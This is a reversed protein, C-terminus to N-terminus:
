DVCHCDHRQIRLGIMGSWGNSKESKKEQKPKTKHEHKDRKQKETCSDIMM